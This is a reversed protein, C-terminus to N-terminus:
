RRRLVGAAAGPTPPPGAGTAPEDRPAAPSSARPRGRAQPLSTGHALFGEGACTAGADDDGGDGPGVAEVGHDAQEGVGVLDVQAAQDVRSRVAVPRPVRGVADGRVAPGGGALGEVDVRGDVGVGPDLLGQPDVVGAEGRGGVQPGQDAGAIDGGGALHVLDGGAGGEDGVEQALGRQGRVARRADAGQGGGGDAVRRGVGGTGQEDLGPAPRRGDGPGQAANLLLQPRARVPRHELLTDEVAEDDGGEALLVRGQLAVDARGPRPELVAIDGGGGPAAQGARHQRDPVAPEDAGPPGPPADAGPAREPGGVAHPAVAAPHGRAEVGLVVEALGAPALLPQAALAVPDPARKLLGAGEDGLAVGGVEGREDGVAQAGPLVGGEAAPAAALRRVGVM